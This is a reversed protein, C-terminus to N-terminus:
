INGICIHSFEFLNKFPEVCTANKTYYIRSSAFYNFVNPPLKLSFFVNMNICQKLVNILLHKTYTFSKLVIFHSWLWLIAIEHIISCLKVFIINLEDLNFTRYIILKWVLYPVDFNCM